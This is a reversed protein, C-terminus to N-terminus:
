LWRLKFWNLEEDGKLYLRISRYESHWAWKFDRDELSVLNSNDREIGPGFTEWCWERWAISYVVKTDIHLLTPTVQYKFKEHGTFRKDLVTIKFTNM